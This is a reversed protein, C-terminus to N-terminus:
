GINLPSAGYSRKKSGKSATAKPSNKEFVGLTSALAMCGVAGDWYDNEIQGSNVAEWAIFQNGDADKKQIPKESVCSEGFMLHSSPTDNYLVVARNSSEPISLSEAFSTKWFNTDILLEQNGRQGKPPNYFACNLGRTKRTKGGKIRQWHQSKANYAKGQQPHLRARHVSERCIRRVEHSVLKWGVDIGAKDISYVRDGCYYEQTMLDNVLEDLGMAVRDAISIEGFEDTLTKTLSQKTFYPTMQDPFAGYDIVYGRGTMTFAMVVYPLFENQVDIFATLIECGEPVERRKFPSVRRAIAEADLVFLQSEDGGAVTPSLQFEANFSDADDLKQVMLGHLASQFLSRDFNDTWFLEADEHMAKFNEAVFKTSKDHPLDADLEFGYLEEFENWLGTNSPFTKIAPIKEGRWHRSKSRDVMQDALDGRRIITVAAFAAVKREGGALKLCDGNVIDLRKKTANKSAASARTQPDDVLVLDPRITEGTTALYQQGRMGGLLSGCTIVFENTLVGDVHGSAIMGKQWVVNTKKGNVHQGEALTSRGGLSILAHLEHAYDAQIM